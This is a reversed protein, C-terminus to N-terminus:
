VREFRLWVSRRQENEFGDQRERLSFLPSFADVDAESIGVSSGATLCQAYLLYTGGPALWRNLNARYAVRRHSPISHYCGMDLVLDFRERVQPMVTVDGTWVKGNVGARNLRSRAIQVARWAYEVGAVQWGYSAMTILNTGTGCGLDLANGAPHNELFRHLEPPSVRTDWPPRRIYMLNFWLWGLNGKM